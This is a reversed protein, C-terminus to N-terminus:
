NDENLDDKSLCVKNRGQRKAEYLALDARHLITELNPDDHHLMTVGISVTFRIKEEKLTEIELNEIENRINEAAKLAGRESTNPLVAAFEEGGLRGFIDSKRLTDRAKIAMEKIVKDGASHGFIDNIMKFKDIDIMLIALKKNERRAYNVMPASSEYFSRRNSVGTLADTTALVELKVNIDNLERTRKEVASELVRQYDMLRRDQANQKIAELIILEFDVTDFKRPIIQYVSANNIIKSLSDISVIDEFLINRTTPSNKYLEIVFKDCDMKSNDNGLITILIENGAIIYNYCGILAQETSIYSEVIYDSDVIRSIKNYLTDLVEINNDICAIVYKAM